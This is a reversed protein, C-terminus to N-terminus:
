DLLHAEEIRSLSALAVTAIGLGILTYPLSWEAALGIFPNLVAASLHEAMSVTSMVTARSSSPIHKQLYHQMLTKRSLGAGAILIILPVSLLWSKSLGLLVFGAGAVVASVLAYRRKSGLLRELRAWSSNFAIQSLAIGAHVLGFYTLPLGIGSLHPQYLWIILFALVHVSLMDLALAKAIRHRWLYRMGSRIVQLYSDRKQRVKVEALTLAIVLAIAFPLAMLLMVPQLGLRAAIFSGIPAAIMIGVLKSSDFRGFYRKSEDQRGMRKMSDYLLAQDCGSILAGGLAWVFEGAAFVWISPYSAYLLPAAVLAAAGLVMSLRRGYRDAIAGTPVELAFVSGVFWSQLLMVQAFSIGGWDLFFPVLVGGIFHFSRFLMFLNLKWINAAFRRSARESLGNRPTTLAM